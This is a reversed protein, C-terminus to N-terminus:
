LLAQYLPSNYVDESILGDYIGAMRHTLGHISHHHSGGHTSSEFRIYLHEGDVIEIVGVGYQLCRLDMIKDGVKFASM